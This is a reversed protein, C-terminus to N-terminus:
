SQLLISAIYTGAIPEDTEITSSDSAEGDNVTWCPTLYCKAKVENISVINFNNCLASCKLVGILSSSIGVDYFDEIIGFKTIVFYHSNEKELINHIICVSSDRLICCRDSLSDVNIYICKNKLKKYQSIGISFESLLPGKNHKGFFKIKNDAVPEVKERIEKEAQRYFFQQLPRHPKRYYKRFFSINNEYPFASFSDLSGLREVDKTLHLLAHVNYSLFTYEYFDPCKKV